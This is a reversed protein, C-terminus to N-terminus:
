ARARRDAAYLGIEYTQGAVLEIRYFDQDNLADITSVIHAGNAVVQHTTGIDDAVNDVTHPLLSPTTTTSAAAIATRGSCRPSRRERWTTLRGLM